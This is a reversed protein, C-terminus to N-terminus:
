KTVRVSVRHIPNIEYGQENWEPEMPQINGAKDSARALLMFDGSTSPQWDFTWSQWAHRSKPPEVVARSWIKGGDTSIEVREIGAQSWALGAIKQKSLALVSNEAPGTILSKVRLATVPEINKKGPYKMVYSSTQFQGVFKHDLVRIQMLWKVSAMGYWGPVIVRVPYGHALPLEEGNMKFVLLTDPDLAKEVALSREYVKSEGPKPNPNQDAGQMLVEEASSKLGARNLVERLPVGTWDATGVAGVHFQLGPVAPQLSTRGNGACEMTVTITRQPLKELDALTLTFPKQVEGAIKLKWSSKNLRPAPFHSRIYFLDNPTIFSKLTALNCQQAIGEEVITLQPKESM